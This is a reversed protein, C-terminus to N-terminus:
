PPEGIASSIPKATGFAVTSHYQGNYRALDATLTYALQLPKSAPATKAVPLVKHWVNKRVIVDRVDGVPTGNQGKEAQAGINSGTGNFVGHTVAHFDLAVAVTGGLYLIARYVLTVARAVVLALGYDHIYVGGTDGCGRYAGRRGCVVRLGCV